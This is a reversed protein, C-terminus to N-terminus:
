NKGVPAAAAPKTFKINIKATKVDSCVGSMCVQFGFGARAVESAGNKPIVFNKADFKVNFKWLSDKYEPTPNVQVYGAGGIEAPGGATTTGIDDSRTLTPKAAGQTDVGSIRATVAFNAQSGEQVEAPLGVITVEKVQIPSRIVYYSVVESINFKKLAENMAPDKVVASAKFTSQEGKLGTNADTIGAKPTWAFLYTTSTADSGQMKFTAGEPLEEPSLAPKCDALACRVVITFKGPTGETFTVNRPATISLDNGSVKDVYKIKEVEKIVVKPVEVKEYVVEKKVVPVEVKQYVVEKKVVPKDVPEYKIITAPTPAPPPNKARAETEAAKARIEPLDAVPDKENACAVVLLAAPIVQLYRVLNKM